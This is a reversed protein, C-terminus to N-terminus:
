RPNQRQLLLMLLLSALTVTYKLFVHHHYTSFLPSKIAKAATITKHKKIVANCVGIKCSILM